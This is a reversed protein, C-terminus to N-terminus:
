YPDGSYRHDVIPPTYRHWMYVGQVKDLRHMLPCGDCKIISNPKYDKVPPLADCHHEDRGDYITTYSM